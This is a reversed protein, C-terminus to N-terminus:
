FTKHHVSNGISYERKFLRYIFKMFRDILLYFAPLLILLLLTSIMLGWMLAIAMPALFPEEGLLGYALPAIGVVTTISTMLIPRIRSKAGTVVADFVNLKKERQLRNIKDVMVLSDNVIIGMLAVGGLFPMLGIPTGTIFLGIVIGVFGLPIISMVILPQVYSKFIVTLVFYIGFIALLLARITGIILEQQEEQEGKLEFDVAPHAAQWLPIQEKIQAVLATASNQRDNQDKLLASVSIYLKGDEKILRGSNTTYDLKAISELPIMFGRQNPIPTNNIDNLTKTENTIYKVILEVEDDNTSFSSLSTISLSSENAFANSVATAIDRLNVNVISALTEDPLVSIGQKGDKYGTSVSATNPLKTIFVNVEKAAALITSINKGTVYVDIPKGAPPGGKLPKVSYSVMGPTAKISDEILATLEDDSEDRSTDLFVRIYGLYSQFDPVNDFTSDQGVTSVIDVVYDGTNAAISAEAKDLVKATAALNNYTPTEIDVIISEAEGPFFVFPM